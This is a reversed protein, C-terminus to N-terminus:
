SGIGSTIPYIKKQVKYPTRTAIISSGLLASPVMIHYFKTNLEDLHKVYSSVHVLDVSVTM